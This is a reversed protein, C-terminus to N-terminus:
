AKNIRQNSIFVDDPSSVSTQKTFGTSTSPNSHDWEDVLLSPTIKYERQLKTRLPRYDFSKSQRLYNDLYIDDQNPSNELTHPPYSDRNSLPPIIKTYKINPSSSLAHNKGYKEAQYQDYRSHHQSRGIPENFPLSYVESPRIEGDRFVEIYNRSIPSIDRQDNPSHSPSSYYPHTPSRNQYYTKQFLPRHNYRSHNDIPAYDYPRYTASRESATSDTEYDAKRGSPIPQQDLQYSLPLRTLQVNQQNPHYSTHQSVPTKTSQEREISIPIIRATSVPQGSLIPIRKDRLELDERTGTTPLKPEHPGITRQKREPILHRREDDVAIQRSHFYTPETKRYSNEQSEGPIKELLQSPSTSSIKLIHGQEDMYRYVVRPKTPQSLQNFNSRLRQPEIQNLNTPRNFKQLQTTSTNALTTLAAAHHLM